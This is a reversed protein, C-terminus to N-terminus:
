PQPGAAAAPARVGRLPSRGSGSTQGQRYGSSSSCLRRTCRSPGARTRSPRLRDGNPASARFSASSYPCRGGTRSPPDSGIEGSTPKARPGTMRSQWRKLSRRAGPQRPRSPEFRPVPRQRRLAPAPATCCATPCLWRQRRSARRASPVPAPQPRAAPKEPTWRHVPRPRRGPSVGPNREPHKLEPQKAMGAVVGGEGPHVARGFPWPPPARSLADAM